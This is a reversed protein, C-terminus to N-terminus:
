GRLRPEAVHDRRAAHAFGDGSPQRRSPRLRAQLDQRRACTRAIQHGLCIGFMPKKGLVGRVAKFAYPLAAPDGPGNSLFIGDPNHALMQEATAVGGPMVKVRFGTAVLRRLINRKIGYDIAVVLPADRMAEHSAAAIAAARTGIASNGTTLRPATVEKVLDRGILGPSAKAKRSWRLRLRSRRELDGGGARRAHPYPPGARAHRHGRHRGRRGSWINASRCRRAGTRRGRGTNRSSSGRSTSAAGVGRGRRQNRRQRDGSLDHLGVPGQVVPRDASGPLGDDRHQLGVEGVAEGIAGFARGRFLRGDALALIAERGKSM